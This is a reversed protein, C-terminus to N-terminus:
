GSNNLIFVEYRSENNLLDNDKLIVNNQTSRDGIRIGIKFHIEKRKLFNEIYKPSLIVLENSIPMPHNTLFVEFSMSM